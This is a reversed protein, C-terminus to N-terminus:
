KLPIQKVSGDVVSADVYAIAGPITAVIMKAAASNRQVMPATGKGKIQAEVWFKKYQNEDMGTISKIFQKFLPDMDGLNIPVVKQNGLRSMKGTYIRKLETKSVSSASNAPNIILVFDGAFVSRSLILVFITIRILQKM